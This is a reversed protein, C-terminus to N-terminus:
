RDKGAPTSSALPRCLGTTSHCWGLQYCRQNEWFSYDLDVGPLVLYGLTVGPSVGFIADDPWELYKRGLYGMTSSFLAELTVHIASCKSRLDRLSIDLVKACRVVEHENRQYLPRDHLQVGGLESTWFERALNDLPAPRILHVIQALPLGDQLSHARYAADVERMLLPFAVGDYIAHHISVFLYSSHPSNYVNLRFLPTTTDDNIEEAIRAGEAGFWGSTNCDQAARHSTWPLPSSHPSLM